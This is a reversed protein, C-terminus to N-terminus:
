FSDLHQRISGLPVLYEIAHCCDTSGSMSVRYGILFVDNRAGSLLTGEVSQSYAHSSDSMHQSNVVTAATVTPPNNIAIDVTM